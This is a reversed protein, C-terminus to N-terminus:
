RWWRRERRRDDVLLAEHAQGRVGHHFVKRGVERRTFRADDRSVPRNRDRGEFGLHGTAAHFVFGAHYM